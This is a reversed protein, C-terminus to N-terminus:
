SGLSASILEVPCFYDSLDQDRQGVIMSHEGIRINACGSEYNVVMVNKNEMM